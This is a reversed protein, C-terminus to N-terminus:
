IKVFFWGFGDDSLIVVGNVVMQVFLIFGVYILDNMFFDLFVVIFIGCYSLVNIDLNQFWNEEFLVWIVFGNVLVVDNDGFSWIEKFIGFFVICMEFIDDIINIRFFVVYSVVGDVGVGFLLWINNGLYYFVVNNLGGVENILINFFEGGVYFSDGEFLM